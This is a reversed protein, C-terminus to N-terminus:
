YCSMSKKITELLFDEMCYVHTFNVVKDAKSSSLFISFLCLVRLDILEVNTQNGRVVQRPHSGFESFYWDFEEPTCSSCQRVVEVSSGDANWLWLSGTEM